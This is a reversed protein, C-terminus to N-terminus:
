RFERVLVKVIELPTHSKPASGDFSKKLAVAVDLSEILGHGNLIPDVSIIEECQYPTLLQVEYLCSIQLGGDVIEYGLTRWGREQFLYVEPFRVANPIWPWGDLVSSRVSFAVAVSKERSEEPLFLLNFENLTRDDIRDLDAARPWIRQAITTPYPPGSGIQPLAAELRSFEFNDLYPVSRRDFGFVDWSMEIVKSRRKANM